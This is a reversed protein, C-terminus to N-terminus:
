SLDLKKKKEKTLDRVYQLRQEELGSTSPNIYM